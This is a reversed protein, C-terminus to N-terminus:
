PTLLVSKSFFEKITWFKHVFLKWVLLSCGLKYYNQAYLVWLLILEAISGYLTYFPLEWSNRIYKHIFISTSSCSTLWTVWFAMFDCRIMLARYKSFRYRNFLDDLSLTHFKTEWYLNSSVYSFKECYIQTFNIQQGSSM